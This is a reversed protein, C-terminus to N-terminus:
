DIVITAHKDNVTTKYVPKIVVPKTAPIKVRKFTNNVDRLSIKHNTRQRICMLAQYTDYDELYIELCLLRFRRIREDNDTGFQFQGAYTKFYCSVLAIIIAAKEENLRQTTVIGFIEMMNSYIVDCKEINSGIHLIIKYYEPHTPRRPVVMYSGKSCAM